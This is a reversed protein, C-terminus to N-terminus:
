PKSARLSLQYTVSDSQHPVIVIEYNGSRAAKASGSLAPSSQVLASTSDSPPFISLRTTGTAAKIQYRLTQGLLLRAVYVKGQGAKLTEQDQISLSGTALATKARIAGARDHAIAYWVQGFKRPNLPKGQQEPFLYVFQADALAELSRSSVNLADISALWDNYSARNYTGMGRRAAASLMELKKLVADAIADRQAQSAESDADSSNNQFQPYKAAFQEDVLDTFLDAAIGLEQPRDRRKESNKATSPQITSNSDADRVIPLTVFAPQEKVLAVIRWVAISALGVFMLTLLLFSVDRWIPPELPSVAPAVSKSPQSQPLSHSKQVFPKANAPQPLSKTVGRKPEAVPKRISSAITTIVQMVKEASAYRRDVNPLLMRELVQAFQPSVIAWQQWVWVQTKDDYLEEPERGTLLVVAVVALAYLDSDREVRDGLRQELPAYGWDDARKHPTLKLALAVEKLLGFQTLVPLQDSRLVITNLSINQHIIGCNHIYSLVPLLKEFLQLVEIESFVSGQALRHNLLSRYTFGAVYERVWFLRRDHVIMVRFRPIQPHQLQALVRVEQQFEARLKELDATAIPIFEELTCRENHRKQDEALYAWGYEGPELVEIIRYRHHLLTGTPIPFQM